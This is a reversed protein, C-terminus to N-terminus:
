EAEEIFGEGHVETSDCVFTFSNPDVQKIIRLTQALMNRRTVTFLLQKESGTYGGTAPLITTGRETVVHLVDAIEQAKDTVIYVVKAYDVGQMMADVVKSSIYITITSYLAVEIQRFIIVAFVVVSADVILLMTGSPVNPFVKKLLLAALDSGGSSLGRIFLLAVGLGTAVGGCFSALLVNNVYHPILADWLEIFGSLLVTAVLTFTLPRIGLNRWAMLLLPINIILSWVSIRIPTIAALATALGSVGGPAIDNPATFVSVGFAVLASGAVTFVIDLLINKLSRNKFSM